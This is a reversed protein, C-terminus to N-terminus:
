SLVVGLIWGEVEALARESPALCPCLFGQLRDDLDAQRLWAAVAYADHQDPTRGETPFDHKWLAPYVETVASRGAPIEWGDFPWCHLRDGLQRRLSLLWPLGAHTSKAVQGQVDFHFVSKATGARVETLRRWRPNGTRLAGQGVDGDRVFDVYIDQDTPWHRQFDELFAPWDLPLQHAEFYALPFSFAHDIGVLTPRDEALREALYQALGLRTWYKRPSPPPPIEVPPETRTAAYLRLGKLSSSPTQAGSYDIGLYREFQPM